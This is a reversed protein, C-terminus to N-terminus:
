KEIRIKDVLDNFRKSLDDLRTGTLVQRDDIRNIRGNTEALQVLVNDMKDIKQDVIDLRARLVKTDSKIAWVFGLAVPTVTIIIELVHVYNIPNQSM